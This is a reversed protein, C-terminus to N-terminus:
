CKFLVFLESRGAASLHHSKYRVSPSVLLRYLNTERRLIRDLYKLGTVYLYMCRGRPNNQLERSPARCNLNLMM